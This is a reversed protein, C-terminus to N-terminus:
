KAFSSHSYHECKISSELSSTEIWFKEERLGDLFFLFTPGPDTQEKYYAYAMGADMDYNEGCFIQVEDFKEVIHKELGTAGKQFQPIRETKGAEEM